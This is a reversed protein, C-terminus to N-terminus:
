LPVIGNNIGDALFVVQWNGVILGVNMIYSITRVKDLEAEGYEELM